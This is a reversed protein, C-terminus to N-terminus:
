DIPRRRARVLMGIGGASCLGFALAVIAIGPASTARLLLAAAAACAAAATAAVLIRGVGPIAATRPRALLLVACLTSIAAMWLYRADHGTSRLRIGAFALPVMALALGLAKM